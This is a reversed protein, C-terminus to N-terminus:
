RRTWSWDDRDKDATKEMLGPALTGFLAGLLRLLGWGILVAFVITTIM